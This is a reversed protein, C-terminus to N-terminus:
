LRSSSIMRRKSPPGSWRKKLRKWVVSKFATLICPKWAIGKFSDIAASELNEAESSTRSIERTVFRCRGLAM